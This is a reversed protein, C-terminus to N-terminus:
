DAEITGATEVTKDEPLPEPTSPLTAEAGFKCYMSSPM